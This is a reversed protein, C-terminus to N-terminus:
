LRCFRRGKFYWCCFDSLDNRLM